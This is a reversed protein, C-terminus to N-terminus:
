LESIMSEAIDVPKKEDDARVVAIAIDGIPHDGEINILYINNYVDKPELIKVGDREIGVKLSKFVTNISNLLFIVDNNFPPPLMITNSAHVM